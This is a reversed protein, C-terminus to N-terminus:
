PGSVRSPGSETYLKAEGTRDAEGASEGPSRTSAARNGGAGVQCDRSEVSSSELKQNVREKVQRIGLKQVRLRPTASVVIRGSYVVRLSKAHAHNSQM